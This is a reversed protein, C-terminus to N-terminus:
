GVFIRRDSRLIDDTSVSTLSELLLLCELKVFMRLTAGRGDRCSRWFLALILDNPL